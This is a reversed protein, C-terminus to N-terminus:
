SPVFSTCRRMMPRSSYLRPSSGSQPRGRRPAPLDAAAGRLDTMRGSAVNWAAELPPDHFKAPAVLWGNGPPAGYPM